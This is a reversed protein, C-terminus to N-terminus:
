PRSDAPLRAIGLNAAEIKLTGIETTAYTIGNVKRDRSKITEIEGPFYIRDTGQMKECEVVRQYLTDM